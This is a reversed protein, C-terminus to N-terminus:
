WVECKEKPNMRSDLPCKYQEAFDKSNSLTAIVRYEDPSHPDNLLRMHLTEKTTSSCWVQAFGLFFLQKHTLGLAPLPLETKHTKVWDEYAHYASKLGGNDAINEGLTTKGNIPEGNIKYSSYQKVMCETQKQFRAISANNWWPRLNGYKDYERGQDDFGHTLEHGIVVGMAGFNLSKPFSKDYFPARLIGAPFFIENKSTTYYANVTPPTMAWTNKPPQRLKEMMTILTFKNDRVNNWFYESANIELREYIKDLKTDNLINPPFGIQDVIANAKDIAAKRTEEDMWSLYPLNQEFAKKIDDVMSEAKEKSDGKFTEQVFMAGLAYGLVSDTDMVCYQWMDINGKTGSVSKTLIDGADRFPTSLYNTLTRVVRWILYNNLIRKSNTDNLMNELLHHLKSLFEPAFVVVEESSDIDINVVSFRENLYKQWNIFPALTQLEKVTMKHYQKEEDQREEAPTTINAIETEFELIELMQNYTDNKEGGLLVGITTMYELAASLIKDETITKNLYYQPSSLDLGGQDIKIINRSSNRNDALIWMYFLAGSEINHVKTLLSEFDWKKVDWVGFLNSINWSGVDKMFKVLPKRGLKEKTKNADMCSQYYLQAKMKATSNLNKYKEEIVHKMIIQNQKRLVGFTGWTSYGSPIPHNKIWGGCAYQFFDKCPDVTKDMSNLVTSAVTVCAPTLCYKQEGEIQNIKSQKVTLMIALIIVVASLIISLTILVRELVTKRQWTTLGGKFLVVSPNFDITPTGGNSVDDDEFNTRKYRQGSMERMQFGLMKSEFKSEAM